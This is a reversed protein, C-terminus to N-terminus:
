LRVVRALRHQHSGDNNHAILVIAQVVSPWWRVQHRCCWQCSSGMDVYYRHSGAMRDQGDQAVVIVSSSGEWVSAEFLSPACVCASRSPVQM